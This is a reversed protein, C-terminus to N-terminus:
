QKALNPYSPPKGLTTIKKSEPLFAIVIWDRNRVVYEAPNGVREKGNVLWHLKGPAKACTDGNKLDATDFAVSTSSLQLGNVRFFNGLKGNKGVFESTQPELHMLGDGHSHMGM